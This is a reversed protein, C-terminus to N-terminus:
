IETAGKIGSKAAKEVFEEVSEPKDVIEVYKKYIWGKVLTHIKYWHNKQEILYVKTGNPLPRSIKDASTSAEARVNLSSATVEGDGEEDSTDLEIYDRAVWGLIRYNAQFWNPTEKLLEVVTDKPIPDTVKAAETNPKTRINLNTTVQGKTGYPLEEETEIEMETTGLVEKRLEDLPYAPGPDMKRQPAIEEHGLIYKIDYDAKLTKCIEKVTNIQEDAYKHWHRMAVNGANRHDAEVVLEDPVVKPNDKEAEWWTVYGDGKPNKVLYGPNSIEIGISYKNFGERGDFSSRGAHNARLNFDVMQTATGDEHIVLHASVKTNPRKFLNVTAQGSPGATYHIIITDPDIKGGKANAPVFSNIEDGLIRHNKVKM